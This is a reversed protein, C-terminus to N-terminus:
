SCPGNNQWGSAPPEVGPKCTAASTNCLFLSGHSTVWTGRPYTETASWPAVGDCKRRTDGAVGGADPGSSSPRADVQVAGGDTPLCPGVDIWGPAPPPHDREECLSGNGCLWRHGAYTVSYGTYFTGNNPDTSWPALNACSVAAGADPGAGPENPARGPTVGPPAADGALLPDAGDPSTSCSALTLLVAAFFRPAMGGIM